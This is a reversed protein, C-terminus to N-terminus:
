RYFDPDIEQPQPTYNNRSLKPFYAVVLEMTTLLTATVTRLVANAIAKLKQM